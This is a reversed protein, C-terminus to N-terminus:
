YLFIPVFKNYTDMVKDVYAQNKWRGDKNRRPSGANYAAVVKELNQGYRTQLHKLYSIGVIINVNPICLTTLQEDFGLDRATGGMVQMLGWSTSQHMSETEVSIGLEKAYFSVRTFYQWNPEYRTAWADFNSENVILAHVLKPNDYEQKRCAARILQWVETTNM